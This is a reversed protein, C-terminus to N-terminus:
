GLILSFLVYVYDRGFNREDDVYNVAELRVRLANRETIGGHDKKCAYIYVFGLKSWHQLHSRFVEGTKPDHTHIGKSKELLQGKISHYNHIRTPAFGSGARRLRSNVKYVLRRIFEQALGALLALKTFSLSCSEFGQCTKADYLRALTRIINEDLNESAITIHTGDGADLEYHTGSVVVVEKGIHGM